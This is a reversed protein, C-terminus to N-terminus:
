GLLSGDLIFNRKNDTEFDSPTYDGLVFEIDRDQYYQVSEEISLDFQIQQLNENVSIKEEINVKENVLQLVELIDEASISSNKENILDAMIKVSDSIEASSLSIKTEQVSEGYFTTSTGQIDFSKVEGMFDVQIRQGARYDTKRTTFGGSEVDDSYRQLEAQAYQFASDKTKLSTDKIKKSITGYKDISSAEPVQVMVRIKSYGSVEISAGSTPKTTDDFVIKRGSFDYLCSYITPMKEDDLGFIGVDQAVSDVTVSVGSYRGNISIETTGDSVKQETVLESGNYEGGQVILYNFIKDTQEKIKLTNQLICIRKLKQCLFIVGILFIVM